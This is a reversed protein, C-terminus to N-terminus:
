GPIEFTKKEIIKDDEIFTECILEMPLSQPPRRIHLTFETDTVQPSIILMRSLENKEHDFLSITLNPHNGEPNLIVTVHIRDNGILKGSFTKIQSISASLNKSADTQNETM